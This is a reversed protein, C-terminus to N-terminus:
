RQSRHARGASSYGWSAPFVEKIKRYEPTIRVM